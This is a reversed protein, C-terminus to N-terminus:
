SPLIINHVHARAARASSTVHEIHLSVKDNNYAGPGPTWMVAETKTHEQSIFRKARDERDSTGFGYSPRSVLTSKAQNGCSSRCGVAPTITGLSPGGKKLSMTRKTSPAASVSAGFNVSMLRLLAHARACVIPSRGCRALKIESTVAAGFLSTM